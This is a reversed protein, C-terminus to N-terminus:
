FMFQEGFISNFLTQFDPLALMIQHAYDAKRTSIPNVSRGFDPPAMTAGRTHCWREFGWKSWNEFYRKRRKWLVKQKLILLRLFWMGWLPSDYIMYLPKWLFKGLYINLRADRRMSSDSVTVIIDYSKKDTFLDTATIVGNERNMNFLKADKGNLSYSLRFICFILNSFPCFILVSKWVQIFFSGAM